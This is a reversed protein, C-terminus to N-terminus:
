IDGGVGPYASLKREIQPVHESPVRESGREMLRGGINLSHRDLVSMALQMPARKEAKSKLDLSRHM